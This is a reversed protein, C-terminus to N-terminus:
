KTELRLVPQWDAAPPVAVLTRAERLYHRTPADDPRLRAATEFAAGAAAFERRCYASFGATFADALALTDADARDRAAMLEFVEVAQTKGKVQLHAVPRLIMQERALAATRPGLLIATGTEKNAGELRSALNVADGLVTYNRKHTSGVNGVVVRGTNIGTRMGLRLGHVPEIEDNLRELAARCDLAAYCAAVAHEPLPEPSGFVAMVADGIYKDLYGHRDLIRETQDELFRNILAVLAPPELRESLTTFGAIDSFLITLERQEGGLEIAHPDVMLRDVVHPSVYAGFWGRIEQKRAREVRFREVAVATFGIASAAVALAPAFWLGALFLGGSAVLASGAIAAASLAPVLLGPGRGATGRGGGFALLGIALIAAGWAAMAGTDALADEALLNALANWHLVVGPEAAGLPTAVADFTAAANAGVLVTRGRVAEFVAGAPPPAAAISRNLGAPDFDPHQRTAEDLLPWGALVFPAAPVVPVGRARLSELGGRWRLLILGNPPGPRVAERGALTAASTAALTATLAAALSGPARYRRVVGDSDPEPRVFGWRSIGEFLDPHAARFADPWVAPLREPVTALTVGTWGAAIAGFLLDQEAAASQEFFVLDIGARDVGAAQLGALLAAFATRPWPWRMGFPPQGLAALSQEDILVLATGEPLPARSRGLDQLRDFWLRDLRQPIGTAALVTIVLLGALLWRGSRFQTAPATL